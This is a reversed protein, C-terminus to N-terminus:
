YRKGTLFVGFRLLAAAFADGLREPWARRLYQDPEVRAAGQAIAESLSQHLSQALNKDKTVINAERALLLSLPDLNSSGVTLWHQDIVAVKAHLFSAQYEYIEVGAALLRGYLQRAARYAVWYEYHGQLLLRVRVGRRAAEILARRLRLGPFFFACALVIEHHAAGIAKRYAREIQVRHRVNDRLMLQAAEHPGSASRLSDAIRWTHLAAGFNQTRWAQMRVWLQKVTEDVAPVLRGEIQLAFDLRPQTMQSNTHPDLFDDLINIGGCFAVRSDVVCLKRHLRRWRNPQWVGWVGVPSFVRCVVGATVFREAWPSPLKGTGVGDVLVRVRVGRYAARELALAVDQGAGRIDFIYTELHVDHEAADIAQILAAFFAVGGRLLQLQTDHKM